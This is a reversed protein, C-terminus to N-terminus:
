HLDFTRVLNRNPSEGHCSVCGNGKKGTSFLATGDINYEGWVWGSGANPHSPDKKMVAYLSISNGSIVEKVLISGTPFSSGVPLEGSSNLAAAAISNFRLKFSGHPSPAAGSLVDGNQYYTFGNSNIESFLVSDTEPDAKDKKCSQIVLIMLIIVASAHLSKKMIIAIYCFVFTM